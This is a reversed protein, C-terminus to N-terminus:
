RQPSDWTVPLEEMSLIAMKEKYRLQDAETALRLGPLRGLLGRYTEQLEIRALQAGLCHHAGVGFGMHAGPSRTVDLTDPDPFVSQDRNAIGFFPFVVEGAPITVGGLTVAQTTIRAPPLGDSLQVFRMLEEIAGPLLAPDSRLRAVEAPRALLAVLSLTIQNATTEHGGLLIGLCMYVLEDESLRDDRDRMTILASMLDDEPAARKVAILEELYGGLARLAEEIEAPDRDWSGVLAESWGRFRDHDGPPVGLMQCIVRIPLPEAFATVLDAPRTGALMQDILESVIAAVQPALLRMRRATFTGAVLKRLRTHEPPDLGLLSKAIVIELGRKERDPSSALARSYRPDVLVERVQEFGTVMWGSAGDPLLMRLVPAQRALALMEPAPEFPRASPPFPFTVVPLQASSMPEDGSQHRLQNIARHAALANRWLRRM